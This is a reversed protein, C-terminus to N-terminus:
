RILKHKSNLKLKCLQQELNDSQNIKPREHEFFAEEIKLSLFLKNSIYTNMTM